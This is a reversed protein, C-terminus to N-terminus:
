ATTGRIRQKESHAAFMLVVAEAEAAEKDNTPACLSRFIILWVYQVLCDDGDSM